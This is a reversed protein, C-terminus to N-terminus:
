PLHGFNPRGKGVQCRMRVGRGVRMMFVGLIEVSRPVSLDSSNEARTDGLPEPSIVVKRDFTLLTDWLKQREGGVKFSWGWGRVNAKESIEESKPLVRRTSCLASSNRHIRFTCPTPHGALPRGPGLFIALFSWFNYQNKM